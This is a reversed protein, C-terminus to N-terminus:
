RWEFTMINKYGICPPKACTEISLDAFLASPKAAVLARMEDLLRCYNSQLTCVFADCRMLDALNVLMSPFEMDTHMASVRYVQRPRAQKAKESTHPRNVQLIRNSPKDGEKGEVMETSQMTLLKRNHIDSTARNSSNTTTLKPVALGTRRFIELQLPNFLVTWGSEMGWAIADSVISPTETGFFIVKKSQKLGLM